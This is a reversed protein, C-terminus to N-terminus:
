LPNSGGSDMLKWEPASITANVSLFANSSADSGSHSFHTMLAGAGVWTFLATGTSDEFKLTVDCTKASMPQSQDSIKNAWTALLHQPDWGGKLSVTGYKPKTVAGFVQQVGGSNGHFFQSPLDMSWEPPTCQNFFLQDMSSTSIAGTM